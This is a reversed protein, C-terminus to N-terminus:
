LEALVSLDHYTRQIIFDILVALAITNHRPGGEQNQVMYNALVQDLHQPAPAM